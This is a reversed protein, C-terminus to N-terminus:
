MMKYNYRPKEEDFLKWRIYDDLWICLGALAYWALCFPACCQQCFFNLPVHSYDWVNLGLWVNLILGSIGEVITAMVMGTGCQYWFPMEWPIYENISGILIGIMGAVVFMSWHTLHGKYITEIIFYLAGFVIFLVIHKALQRMNIKMNEIISALVESVFENPLDRGYLVGAIEASDNLSRIYEHLANVYTTHYTKFVTAKNIVTLMDSASYYRCVEGDAHYPVQEAGSAIMTSLTILNLQDQTTLSFHHTDGDSLEIDFGGEIVKRCIYNMEEIKMQRLTEVTAVENEDIVPPLDPTDENYDIDERIEDSTEFADLLRLYEDKEIRVIRVQVYVFEGHEIPKLWDDHYYTDRFDVCQASDIDSILILGHKPQYRRFSDENALGVINTGDILKFFSM